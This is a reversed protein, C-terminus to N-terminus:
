STARTMAGTRPWTVSFGALDGVAGAIPTWETLLFNATYSPNTSSTAGSTPKCIIEVVTNMIGNLSADVESAAHDQQFTITISGDSLGGIREAAGSSDFNTTDLEAYSESLEYSSIHDALDVANITIYLDTAAFKAM